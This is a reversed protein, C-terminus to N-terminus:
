LLDRLRRAGHIYRVIEVGGGLERYLILYRGVPWARVGDAIDPREIGLHPNGALLRSKRDLADLLRDAAKPNDLAIYTWIGILDEEAQATRVLPGSTM